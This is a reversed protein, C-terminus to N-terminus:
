ENSAAAPNPQKNWAASIADAIDGFVHGSMPPCDESYGSGQVSMIVENRRLDLLDVRIHNIRYGGGFCQEMVDADTEIAYRTTAENYKAIRGDPVAETMQAVSAFRKLRFGCARLKDELMRVVEGRRGVVALERPGDLPQEPRQSVRASGPLACGLLTSVGFAVVVIRKM